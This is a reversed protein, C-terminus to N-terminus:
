LAAAKDARGCLICVIPPPNRGTERTCGMTAALRETTSWAEIRDLPRVMGLRKADVRL